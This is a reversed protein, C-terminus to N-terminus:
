SRAGRALPVELVLIRDALADQNLFDDRALGLEAGIDRPFDDADDAVLLNASRGVVAAGAHVDRVLLTGTYPMTRFTRVATSGSVSCVAIM